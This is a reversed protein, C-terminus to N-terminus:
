RAPVGMRRASWVIRRQKAVSRRPGSGHGLLMEPSGLSVHSAVRFGINNNRNDPNNNNRYVARANNQNNIWSGGRLHTVAFGALQRAGPMM